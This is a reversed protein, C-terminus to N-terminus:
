GRQCGLYKALSRLRKRTEWRFVARVIGGLWRPRTTFGAQYDLMSGATAAEHRISAEFRDFIPPHNIMEIEAVVGPEFKRYRAEIGIGGLWWKARCLFTAGLAPAKAGRTLRSEALMPDWELRRDIAHVVAFVEEVGVPM